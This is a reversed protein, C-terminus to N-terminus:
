PITHRGYFTEMGKMMTYNINEQGKPHNIVNNPNSFMQPDSILGLQGFTGLRAWSFKYVGYM